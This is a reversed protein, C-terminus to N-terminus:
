HLTRLPCTILPAIPSSRRLRPCFTRELLVLRPLPPVVEARLSRPNASAFPVADPASFTENHVRHFATIPGDSRIARPGTRQQSPICLYWLFLARSCIRPSPVTPSHDVLVSIHHSKRRIMRRIQSCSSFVDLLVPKHHLLLQPSEQHRILGHM